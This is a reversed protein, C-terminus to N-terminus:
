KNGGGLGDLIDGISTDKLDEWGAKIACDDCLEKEGDKLERVAVDDAKRGCDDCKGDECGALCFVATLAMLICLVKKM